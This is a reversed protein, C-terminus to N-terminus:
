RTSRACCPRAPCAARVPPTSTCTGSTRPARWRSRDCSATRSWTWCQRGTQATSMRYYDALDKVTAIGHARAAREVLIRHAQEPEPTPLSRVWSPLVNDILDYHRQFGQRHATGLAGSAFLAECAKKAVSWEWWGPRGKSGSELAQEIQGATLPGRDRVLALVNDLLGPHEAQLRTELSQSWHRARHGVLPYLEVPVMSAEHAWCEVLVRSEAKAPATWVLSELLDVPYPGLRAFLPMRHARELVNVSDIQLVGLRDVARTLAAKGLRAPPATGRLQQAAVAIRRAAAPSITDVPRPGRDPVPAARSSM